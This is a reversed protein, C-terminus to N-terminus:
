FHFPLNVASRKSIKWWWRGVNFLALWCVLQIGFIIPTHPCRNDLAWHYPRTAINQRRKYFFSLGIIHAATSQIYFAFLLRVFPPFFYLFLCLFDIHSFRWDAPQFVTGFSRVRGRAMFCSLRASIVSSSTYLSKTDRANRTQPDWRRKM